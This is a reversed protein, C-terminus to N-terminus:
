SRLWHCWGSSAIPRATRSSGTGTMTVLMRDARIGTQKEALRKAEDMIDRMVERLVFANDVFQRATHPIYTM